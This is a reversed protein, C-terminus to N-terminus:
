IGQAQPSAASSSPPGQRQMPLSPPVIRFAKGNFVSTVLEMTDAASTTPPPATRESSAEWEKTNTEIIALMHDAMKAFNALQKQFLSIHILLNVIIVNGDLTLFFVGFFLFVLCPM